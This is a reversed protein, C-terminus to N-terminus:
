AHLRLREQGCHHSGRAKLVRVGIDRSQGTQLPDAELQLQLRAPSNGTARKHFLIGPTNGEQAALQLRRMVRASFWNQWILVLACENAQLAKEASWLAQQCRDQPRILINSELAIGAQALAPTYLQQPPTIWLIPKDKQGLRRLLPLLLQLEGIGPRANIIEVLGQRPWGEGPLLRDLAQWGSPEGSAVTSNTHQRGRWLAPEKDLLQNIRPDRASKASQTTGHKHDVAEAQTGGSEFLDYNM